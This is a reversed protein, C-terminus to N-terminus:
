FHGPAGPRTQSRQPRDATVVPAAQSASGPGWAKWPACSRPCMPTGQTQSGGEVNDEREVPLFSPEMSAPPLVELAVGSRTVPSASRTRLAAPTPRLAAGPETQLGGLGYSHGARRSRWWGPRASPLAPWSQPPVASRASRGVRFGRSGCTRPWGPPRPLQRGDKRPSPCLARPGELGQPSLGPPGGAARGPSLGPISQVTVHPQHGGM